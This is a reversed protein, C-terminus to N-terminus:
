HKCSQRHVSAIFYLRQLAISLFESSPDLGRVPVRAQRIRLARPFEGLLQAAVDVRWHVPGHVAIEIGGRAAGGQLIAARLHM